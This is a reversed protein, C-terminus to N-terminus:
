DAGASETYIRQRRGQDSLVNSMFLGIDWDEDSGFATLDDDDKRDSEYELHAVERDGDAIALRATSDTVSWNLSTDGAMKWARDGIRLWLDGRHRYFVVTTGALRAFHGEVLRVGAPASERAYTNLEGSEPDFDGVEAFRDFSEVYM